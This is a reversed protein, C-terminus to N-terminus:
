AMFAWTLKSFTKWVLQLNHCNTPSETIHTHLSVTIHGCAVILNQAIIGSPSIMNLSIWYVWPLQNDSIIILSTLDPLKKSCIQGPACSDV